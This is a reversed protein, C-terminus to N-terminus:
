NSQEHGIQLNRHLKASKNDYIPVFIIAKVDRYFSYLRSLYANSSLISFKLFTKKSHPRLNAKELDQGMLGCLDTFVVMAKFQRIFDSNQGSITRM